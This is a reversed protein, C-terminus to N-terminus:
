GQEVGERARALGLGRVIGEAGNVRVDADDGHRVRPEFHELADGLRADDDRRRHLEHVDGPQHFARRCAFTQAIFKQRVDASVSSRVGSPLAMERRNQNIVSLGVMKAQLTWSDSRAVASWFGNTRFTRSYAACWKAHSATTMLACISLSRISRVSASAFSNKFSSPTASDPTPASM